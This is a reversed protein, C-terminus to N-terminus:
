PRVLARLGDGRRATAVAEGAEALPHVSTVLRRLDVTGAGILELARRYHRRASSSTGVVNLENYHVLNATVTAEGKGPFGAFLNVFGGKRVLAFIEDVIPAAGIAMIAAHVGLGGTREAVVGPLGGTTPDVVATAGMERAFRRRHAQPESVIVESAGAARALQLHMLGIPGAGAILVTQGLALRVKEAGNICCALPEALCGEEYSVNAPLHFVNGAAVARAPVLVYEAFGGHLDYGFATMDDCVNELGHLCYYCRGCSVIPTVGVRDGVALGTVGEGVEAVDGAIEHGIIGPLRVGRTKTGDVIRLDTGCVAAARTRILVEGPGAAPTPVEEYRLDNPGYLVVARM